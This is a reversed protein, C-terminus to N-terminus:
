DPQIRSWYDTSTRVPVIEFEVLDDWCSTWRSVLEQDSAEMVQFCRARAADVWSAHCSVGEPLMRGARRFREGVARSDGGKFHEIVMFLM